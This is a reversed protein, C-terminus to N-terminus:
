SVPVRADLMVVTRILDPSTSTPVFKSYARALSCPLLGHVKGFKSAIALHAQPLPIVVQPTSSYSLREELSFPITKIIALLILSFPVLQVHSGSVLPLCVNM